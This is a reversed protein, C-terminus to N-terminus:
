AASLEKLRRQMQDKYSLKQKKLRDKEVEEVSTLHPRKSLRALKKECAKHSNFVERFGADVESLKEMLPLKSDDM